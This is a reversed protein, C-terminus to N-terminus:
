ELLSNRIKQLTRFKARDIAKINVGLINRVHEEDIRGLSVLLAALELNSLKELCERYTVSTPLSFDVTKPEQVINSTDYVIKEWSISDNNIKRKASLQKRLISIAHNNLCRKFYSGFKGRNTSYAIASQYCVIMAEQDWDQEDYLRLYYKRKVTNIMPRYIQCLSKVALGDSERQIRKILELEYSSSLKNM